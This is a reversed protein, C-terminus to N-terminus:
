DFRRKFHVSGGTYRILRQRATVPAVGPDTAHFHEQHHKTKSLAPPLPVISWSTVSILKGGISACPNTTLYTRLTQTKEWFASIRRSSKRLKGSESIDFMSLLLIIPQVFIYSTRSIKDLIMPPALSTMSTGNTCTQSGEKNNKLCKERSTVLLCARMTPGWKENGYGCGSRNTIITM